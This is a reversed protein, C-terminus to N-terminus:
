RTGDTPVEQPKLATYLTIENKEVRERLDEFERIWNSMSPLQNGTNDIVGQGEVNYRLILRGYEQTGYVAGTDFVIDSWSEPVYACFYGDKTLGFFVMKGLANWVLDRHDELWQIILEEFADKFGHDIFDDVLQRIGEIEAHDLNVHESLCDLYCIIKHLDECITFYRQEQSKVNWYLKPIEPTFATFASFLPMWRRIERELRDCSM